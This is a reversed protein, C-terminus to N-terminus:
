YAGSDLLAYICVLEYMACGIMDEAVIVPGSVSFVKGTNEDSETTAVPM